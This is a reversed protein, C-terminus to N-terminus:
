LLTTSGMGSAHQDHWGGGLCVGDGTGRCLVAGAGSRWIGCCCAGAVVFPMRGRRWCCWVARHVRRGYGGVKVFRKHKAKAKAMGAAAGSVWRSSASTSQKQRLWARLQM